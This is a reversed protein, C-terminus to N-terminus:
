KLGLKSNCLIHLTSHSNDMQYGLSLEWVEKSKLVELVGTWRLYGDM